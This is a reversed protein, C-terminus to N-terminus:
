MHISSFGLFESRNSLTNFHIFLFKSQGESTKQYTGNQTNRKGRAKIILIFKAKAPGANSPFCTSPM